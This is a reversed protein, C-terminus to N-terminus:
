SALSKFSAFHVILMRVFSMFSMSQVFLHVGCHVAVRLVTGM